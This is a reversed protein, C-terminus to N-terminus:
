RGGGLRELLGRLADAHLREFSGSRAEFYALISRLAHRQRDTLTLNKQSFDQCPPRRYLPVINKSGFIASAFRQAHPEHFFCPSWDGDGPTCVAWAEPETGERPKSGEGHTAHPAPTHTEWVRSDPDPGTIPKSRDSVEAQKEKPMPETVPPHLYLPVIETDCAYDSQMDVADIRSISTALLGKGNAVGWAVPEQTDGTGACTPLDANDTRPRGVSARAEPSAGHDTDGTGGAPRRRAAPEPEPEPARAAPAADHNPANDPSPCDSAARCRERLMADAYRMAAAATEAAERDEAACQSLLGTLAAAAFHDRLDQKEEAVAKWRQFEECWERIYDDGPAAVTQKAMLREREDLLRGIMRAATGFSATWANPPGYRNSWQRAESAESDTYPVSM